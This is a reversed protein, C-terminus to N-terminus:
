EPLGESDAAGAPSFGFRLKHFLSVPRHDFDRGVHKEGQRLQRKAALLAAHVKFFNGGLERSKDPSHGQDRKQKSRMQEQGNAGSENLTEEDPGDLERKRAFFFTIPIHRLEAREHGRQGRRDARAVDDTHAGGDDHAAGSRHQPVNLPFSKCTLIISLPCRSLSVFERPKPEIRNLM